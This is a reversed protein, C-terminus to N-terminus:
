KPIYMYIYPANMKSLGVLCSKKAVVKESKM